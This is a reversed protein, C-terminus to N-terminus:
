RQTINSRNRKCYGIQCTKRQSTSPSPQNYNINQQDEKEKGALEEVLLFYFIKKPYYICQIYKCNVLM